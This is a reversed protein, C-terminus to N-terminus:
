NEFENWFESVTLVEISGDDVKSKVWDFYDPMSYASGSVSSWAQATEVEKLQHGYVFFDQNYNIANQHADQIVDVTQLNHMEYVVGRFRPNYIFKNEIDLGWGSHVFSGSPVAKRTSKFGANYMMVNLAYTSHGGVFATHHCARDSINERIWNRATQQYQFYLSNGLTNASEHTKSHVAIDHGRNHLDKAQALTLNGAQGIGDTYIYFTGRMNREELLEAIDMCSNHGDDFSIMCKSKKTRFKIIDIIEIELDDGTGNSSLPAIDLRLYNLSMSLPSGSNISNDKSYLPVYYIGDEPVKASQISVNQVSNASTNNNMILVNMYSFKSSNLIKFKIGFTADEGAKFGEGYDSLNILVRNVVVSNNLKLKLTSETTTSISIGSATYISIGSLDKFKRINKIYESQKKFMAKEITNDIESASSELSDFDDWTTKKM